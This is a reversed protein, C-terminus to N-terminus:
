HQKERSDRAGVGEAAREYATWSALADQFEGHTYPRFGKGLKAQATTFRPPYCAARQPFRSGFPSAPELLRPRFLSPRILEAQLRWKLAPKHDDCRETITM